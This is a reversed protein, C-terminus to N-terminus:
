LSWSSFGPDAYPSMTTPDQTISQDWPAPTRRLQPSTTNVVRVQVSEAGGYPSTYQNGNTVPNLTPATYANPVIIPRFEVGWTRREYVRDRWRTIRHGVRRNPYETTNLGQWMGAAAPVDPTGAPRAGNTDVQWQYRDVHYAGDRAGMPNPLRAAISGDDRLHGADNQAVSAAFSLGAGYGIGEDHGPPSFTPGGPASDLTYDGTTTPLLTGAVPPSDPAMAWNSKLDSIDEPTRHLADPVTGGLKPQAYPVARNRWADTYVM